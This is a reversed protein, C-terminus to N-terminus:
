TRAVPLSMGFLEPAPQCAHNALERCLAEYHYPPIRGRSKWNGIATEGLGLMVAVSGPGGLRDLVEKITRLQTM